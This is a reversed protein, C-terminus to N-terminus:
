KQCGPCYFTSRQGLKIQKILADCVTCKEGARGYVRLKQKFYGPKGESNAFDRITTGGAAISEDLIIAVEEVLREYATKSVKGAPRAPAIRARFLAESAYINGVGVVVHADM